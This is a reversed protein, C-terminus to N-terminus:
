LWKPWAPVALQLLGRQLLAARPQRSRDHFAFPFSAGKIRVSPQESSGHCPFPSPLLRPHDAVELVVIVLRPLPQALYPFLELVIREPAHARRELALARRVLALAM